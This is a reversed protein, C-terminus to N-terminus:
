CGGAPAKIKRTPRPFNQRVGDQFIIPKYADPVSRHMVPSNRYREVHAKFGQHPGSWGVECVDSPPSPQAAPLSPTKTSQPTPPTPTTIPLRDEASLAEDIELCDWDVQHGSLVAASTETNAKQKSANAQQVMMEQEEQAQLRREKEAAEAEAAKRLEEQLRREKEAVEAEAAKRREE